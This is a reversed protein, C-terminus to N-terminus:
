AEVEEPATKEFTEDFLDAIENFLDRADEVRQNEKGFGFVSVGEGISQSLDTRKPIEFVPLSYASKIEEITDRHEANQEVRNCVIALRNIDGYAQELSSLQKAFIQLSNANLKEPIVPIVVNGTAVLANDTLVNLSPPTDVIIYDYDADLENLTMELRERSKPAELLTQINKNNALKESAPLIDFEEHEVLIDNVSEMQDFDLVDFLTTRETDYYLEDYGLSCTLGGHYDIDVLLVNYGCASLAGGTHIVDTTKGAGGKQNAVTIRATNTDTMQKTHKTTNTKSTRNTENPSPTENVSLVVVSNFGLTRKV